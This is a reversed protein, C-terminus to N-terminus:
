PAKEVSISFSKPIIAGRSKCMSTHCTDNRIRSRALRFLRGAM